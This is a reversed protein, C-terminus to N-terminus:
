DKVCRVAYGNHVNYIGKYIQEFFHSLTFNWAQDSITSETATWWNAENGFNIFTGAANRGGGPLGTFNSINTAGTNPSNWHLTGIEKLPGGAVNPGGLCDTLTTFEFDSPVHWGEPALGRPDNVAYWNYLKGYTAAYTTSDNNYYCYAGTTLAAWTANDTVKPILDGNRYTSVNLNKTMWSQCCISISSYYTPTSPPPQQWSALGTADSTLIKGTGQTGDAIKFTGNVDLRATPTTTGIGVNVSATAGNIGNISGIVVSNSASVYANSGIASANTIDASAVDSAYGIATNHNGTTLTNLAEYGLGTNNFGTTNAYLAANGNAVNNSGSANAYLASYGTATNNAGSTNLNLAYSGQATNFSGTTTNTLVVYGVATNHNAITNAYLASAGNATNGLGTTNSYLAFYGSASNSIGTTNSRLANSGHASNHTGTTNNRLAYTGSATNSTGTTNFYMAGRGVATNDNGTSNTYLADKGIATNFNGTTNSRLASMGYAANSNGTTNSYGADMGNFSNYLGGGVANNVRGANLGIFTNFSTDAHIWVLDNGANSRLKILPFFNGQISNAEIILQTTNASGKIHLKGTPSLIGVGVNQSFALIPMLFFFVFPLLLNKSKRYCCHLSM